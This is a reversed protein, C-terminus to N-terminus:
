GEFAQASTARLGNPALKGPNRWLFWANVVCLHQKYINLTGLLPKIGSLDADCDALCSHLGGFLHAAANAHCTLVVALACAQRYM